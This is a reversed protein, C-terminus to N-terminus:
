NTCHDKGDLPAIVNEVSRTVHDAMCVAVNSRANQVTSIQLVHCIVISERGDQNALVFGQLFHILKISAAASKLGINNNKVEPSKTRVRRCMVSQAMIVSVNTRM